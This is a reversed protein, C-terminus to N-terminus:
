SRYRRRNELSECKARGDAVLGLVAEVDDKPLGRLCTEVAKSEVRDVRNKSAKLLCGFHWDVLKFVLGLFSM